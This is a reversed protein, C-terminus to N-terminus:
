TDEKRTGIHKEMPIPFSVSSPDKLHRLIKNKVKDINQVAENKFRITQLNLRQLVLDRHYDYYKQYEHIKGDLEIVLKRKACYFDGIFFYKRHNDEKYIFPKQRVFRYGGLQKKRLHRWLEKESETPNKRLERALTTISKRKRKM